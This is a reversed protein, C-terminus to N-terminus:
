YDRLLAAIEIIEVLQKDCVTFTNQEGAVGDEGSHVRAACSAIVGAMGGVQMSMKGNLNCSFILSKHVKGRRIDVGRMSSVSHGVGRM